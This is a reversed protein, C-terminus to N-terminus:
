QLFRCPGFTIKRIPNRGTIAGEANRIEQSGLYRHVCGLRKGDVVVVLNRYVQNETSATPGLTMEGFVYSSTPMKISGVIALEHKIYQSDTAEPFGVAAPDEFVDTLDWLRVTQPEQAFVIQGVFLVLLAIRRLM